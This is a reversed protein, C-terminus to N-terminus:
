PSTTSTPAPTHPTNQTPAPLRTGPPLTPLPAATPIPPLPPGPITGKDSTRVIHPTVTLILENRTSNVNTSRFARGFLPLDGLIPIKTELRSSSEQILGGIVLTQNDKLDVTTLTDRTAIQPVGNLIGTESNVTPHLSVSIFDDANVIPTIDLTIGTQFQQIQTTAVTGAGGGSTTLVSITDGARITATRGSITTIRPDALVRAKNQQILLNLQLSFQLPTRAFSKLGQLPPPVSGDAPVSPSQETFQTSLLAGGQPLQLGLDKADTEDVELVETDLVVLPQPVDLKSILDKAIKISLPSGYLVLQTSNPPVTIKLDPAAASLTQSVTTAIDTASTSAAGNMGPIAARLAVVEVGGDYGAGQAGGATSAPNPLPGADLQDIADSIRQQLSASALVTIANLDADVQVPLNRYSRQLLEAVSTADVFRLRYVQTYSASAQPEDLQKALVKASAIADPAGNILIEAGSVSVRVNPMARALARAVDRASRQTIRLAETPYLPPPTPTPLPSDIAGIVTKIQALDQPSSEIVITRNPAEILRAHPYLLRVRTVVDRESVTHLQVSDVVSALPDRVDVGAVVARISALEATNATLIIANSSPDVRIAVDPYLARVIHEARAAPILSLPIVVPEARKPIRHHTKGSAGYVWTPLM